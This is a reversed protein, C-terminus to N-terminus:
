VTGRSGAVVVLLKSISAMLKDVALTQVAMQKGAFFAKLQELYRMKELLRAETQKVIMVYSSADAKSNLSLKSNVLTAIDADIDHLLKIYTPLASQGAQGIKPDAAAESIVSSANQLAAKIEATIPVPPKVDATVAEVVKAVQPRNTQPKQGTLLLYLMSVASIALIGEMATPTAIGMSYALARTKLTLAQRSMFQQINPSNQKTYRKYDAARQMAARTEAQLIEAVEAQSMPSGDPRRLDRYSEPIVPRGKADLGIPEYKPQTLKPVPPLEGPKVKPMPEFSAPRPAPRPPPQGPQRFPDVKATGPMPAGPEFMAPNPPRLEFPKPLAAPPPKPAMVPATPLPMPRIPEVPMVPRPRLPPRPQAQKILKYYIDFSDM